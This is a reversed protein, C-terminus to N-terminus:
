PTDEPKPNIADEGTKKDSYELMHINLTKYIDDSFARFVDKDTLITIFLGIERLRRRAEAPMIIGARNWEEVEINMRQVMDKWVLSAEVAATIKDM